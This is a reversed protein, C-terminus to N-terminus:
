PWRQATHVITLIEIHVGVIQYIIIYPLDSIILERTNPVRGIRGMAPSDRLTDTRVKLTQIVRHAARPNEATIYVFIEDLRRLARRTWLVKYVTM